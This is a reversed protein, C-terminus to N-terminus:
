GLAKQTLSVHDRSFQEAAAKLYPKYEDYWYRVYGKEHIENLSRSYHLLLTDAFMGGTTRVAVVASQGLWLLNDPLKAVASLAMLTSVVFVPQGQRIAEARLNAWRQWLLDLPPLSPNPLSAANARLQEWEKRLGQIDLPPLNVTRVAHGATRELGDLLQEISEFEEGPELLGEEQLSGAIERILQKGAGSLDALAALVWVPSAHFTLIGALEVGNSATRRILFNKALEEGEPYTGHVEGVQEILFRLTNEVLSEYLYTKRLADPIMVKSLERLLGGSLASASRLVREPLSLLYQPLSSGM